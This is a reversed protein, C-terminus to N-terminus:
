SNRGECVELVDFAECFWIGRKIDSYDADRKVCGDAVSRTRYHEKVIV